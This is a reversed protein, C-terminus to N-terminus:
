HYNWQMGRKIVDQQPSCLSFFYILQLFCLIVLFLLKVYFIAYLIYNVINRCSHM